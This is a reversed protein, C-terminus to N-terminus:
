DKLDKKIKELENNEVTKGGLTGGGDIIELIKEAKAVLDDSGLYLKARVERYFDSERQSLGGARPSPNYMELIRRNFKLMSYLNELRKRLLDVERDKQIQKLTRFSVLVIFLTFVALIATFIAVITTANATKESAKSSNIAAEASEKEADLVQSQKLLLEYEYPEVISIRMGTYPKLEENEVKERWQVIYSGTEMFTIRFISCNGNLQDETLDILNFRDILRNAEITENKYVYISQNDFPGNYTFSVYLYRNNLNVEVPSVTVTVPYEWGAVGINKGLVGSINTEYFAPFEINLDLLEKEAAVPMLILFLLLFIFVISKLRNKM